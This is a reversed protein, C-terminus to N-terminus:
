LIPVGPYGPPRPLPSRAMLASTPDLREHVGVLIRAALLGLQPHDTFRRVAATLAGPAWWSDDDAFAVYPQTVQAVGSNRAAAGHNAGLPLVRVDPFAAMVAPVTDDTSGNDVVLLPYPAELATLRALSCLLTERRNRTVVVIALPPADVTLTM